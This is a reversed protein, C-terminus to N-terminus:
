KVFRVAKSLGDKILNLVFSGSHLRAVNIQTKYKGEMVIRGQMDVIQYFDVTKDADIFLYDVAPNPYINVSIELDNASSVPVFDANSRPLLQYGELFPMENDFQGGIGTVNVSQGDLFFPDEWNYSEVDADIRVTFQNGDGDQFTVNFGSGGSAWEAPDVISINQLTVLKSESDENLDTVVDPGILDNDSSIYVVETPEIQTLGNFQSITGTMEVMDGEAYTYGLDTGSFVGIADGSEDVLAFQLGGTRLNAGHVIGTITCTVGVSDAVGNADITNIVGIDYVPIEPESDGMVMVTGVMGFGVHPDCQYDYLGPITFTFDYVWAASSAGGNGFGEPNDPYTALSGNVNHSGGTNIWRVSEGVNITIDAPTFVNSSVEVTYDPVFECSTNNAANPTGFITIGNLDVGTSTMSVGWNNGDNNDSDIDCLEISAGAGDTGDEFTPWDGEDDYTVEDIVNGNPNLIAVYEGGNSLALDGIQIAPEGLITMIAAPNIALIAYGEAPVTGSEITHTNNDQIMYGTLDIASTTSNYLEVYELSDTGSEPPNYSIETIVLQANIATAGLVLFLLVLLNKM